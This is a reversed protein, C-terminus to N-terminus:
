RQRLSVNVTKGFEVGCHDLVSEVCDIWACKTGHHYGHKLSVLIVCKLISLLSDCIELFSLM